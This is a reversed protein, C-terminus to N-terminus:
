VEPRGLILEGDGQNRQRSPDLADAIRAASMENLRGADDGADEREFDAEEYSRARSHGKRKKSAASGCPKLVLCIVLGLTVLVLAAGIAASGGLPMYDGTSAVNHSGAAGQAGTSKASVGAGYSMDESDDDGKTGDEDYYEQLVAAPSPPPSAPAQCSMALVGGFREAELVIAFTPMEVPEEGLAFSYSTGPSPPHPANLLPTAKIARNVHVADGDVAVTVVYGEIWTDLTVTLRVSASSPSSCASTCKQVDLVKVAGGLRCDPSARVQRVMPPPASPRQVPPLPPPHKPPPSPASPPPSDVCMIHPKHHPTPKLEFEICAPHGECRLGDSGAADLTFSFGIQKDAVQQPNDQITVGQPKSVLLGEQGYYVVTFTRYPVWRLLKLTVDSGADRTGGLPYAGYEPMLDCDTAHPPAPPPVDTGGSCTITPSLMDEHSSGGERYGQISFYEHGVYAPSVEVEVFNPGGAVATVAGQPEVREITLPRAFEVRVTKEMFDPDANLPFMVHLDVASFSPNSGVTPVPSSSFRLVLPSPAHCLFPVCHCAATTLQFGIDPYLKVSLWAPQRALHQESRRVHTRM